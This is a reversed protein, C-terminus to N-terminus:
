ATKSRGGVSINLGLNSIVQRIFEGMGVLVVGTAVPNMWDARLPQGFARFVSYNLAWSVLIAVGVSVTTTLAKPTKVPLIEGLVEGVVALALALGAFVVFAYM